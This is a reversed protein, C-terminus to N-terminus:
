LMSSYMYWILKSWLLDIRHSSKTIKLKTRFDLHKILKCPLTSLTAHKLKYPLTWSISILVIKCPKQVIREASLKLCPTSISSHSSFSKDRNLKKSWSKFTDSPKYFCLLTKVKMLQCQLPMKICNLSDLTTPIAQEEM